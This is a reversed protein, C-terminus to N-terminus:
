PLVCHDSIDEPWEAAWRSGANGDWRAIHNADIGGAEHFLRGCDFEGDYVTLAYVSGNMGSGLPQWSNGDWSAIYRAVINGAQTFNGGAILHGNYVTVAYVPGNLGEVPPGNGPKWNPECDGFALSSFLLVALIASTIFRIHM